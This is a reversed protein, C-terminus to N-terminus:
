YPRAKAHGGADEGRGAGNKALDSLESVESSESVERERWLVPVCRRYPRV